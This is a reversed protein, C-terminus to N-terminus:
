FGGVDELTPLDLEPNHKNRSVHERWVATAYARADKPKATKVALILSDAFADFDDTKPFVQLAEDLFRKRNFVGSVQPIAQAILAFTQM